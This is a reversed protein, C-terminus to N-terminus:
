GSDLLSPSAPADDFKCTVWKSKVPFLSELLESELSGSELVLSSEVERYLGFRVSCDDRNDRLFSLGVSLMDSIAKSPSLIESSVVRASTVVGSGHM